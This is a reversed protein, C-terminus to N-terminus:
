VLRNAGVKIISNNIANLNNEIAELRVLHRNFSTNQAISALHGVSIRMNNNMEATYIRIANNQGILVSVTEESVGKIVGQMAQDTAGKSRGFIDYGKGSGWKDLQDFITMVSDMAPIIYEGSKDLAEAIAGSGYPAADVLEGAMREIHPMMIKSFVMKTVIDAIVAGMTKRFADAATEGAKFADVLADRLKDGIQGAMEVFTDRVQNKAEELQDTWAITDQLLVKTADDVQNTSILTQALEKNLNGSEDVLEPYVDLLGGYLDKKKKGKFFGLAGGIIFGAAAGIVTGVPGVATGVLAGIKAGALGITLGAAAGTAVSKGDVANKQGVKARGEELKAVSDQYKKLADDYQALGAKIKGDYDTLFPNRSHDDGKKQTLAQSYESEFRMSDIQFQKEAEKRKRSAETIMGILNLVSQLAAVWGQAGMTVKGDEGKKLSSLATTLNNVQGAVGSLINGMEAFGGGMGSMIEGLQGAFNGVVGILAIRKQQYSNEVKLLDEFHKKYAESEKDLGKTLREFDARAAEVDIKTLDDQSKQVIKEFAKYEKSQKALEDKDNDFEKKEAADIAALVKLYNAAKKDASREDLDNRMDSYKKQISLHREESGAVSVLFDQLLRKREKTAEILQEATQQRKAVGDSSMDNPNLESQIAKLKEIEETLSTSADRAEDLKERFQDIASKGGTAQTRQALLNDLDVLDTDSLKGSYGVDKMAELRAIEKNLYALYNNGNQLLGKFQDDASQQGYAAIWREYIAYMQQKEQLEEAFTKIRVEKEEAASDKVAKSKTPKGPAPTNPNATVENRKALGDAAEKLLATNEKDLEQLAVKKRKETEAKFKKEDFGSDELFLLARKGLGPEFEDDLVGTRIDRARKNNALIQEENAQLKLKAELAKTYDRIADAGKSTAINDLTLANFHEPSIAILEKLKANRQERSLSEDGIQKTLLQIKTTEEAHKQNLRETIELARDQAKTAETTEDSFLAVATALAILSSAALVYPNALTARNFAIQNATAFGLAKGMAFYEQVFTVMAASKQAAAVLLLAAKYSGYGAVIVKLSDIIPEYNEVILTAFRIGDALLGEQEKGINNFAQSITDEFNSYLGILGKSQEAMLGAFMGGSDTLKNIAKEVQPFGVKGQEVLKRVESEAVGFQEALLKILPIGRGVYQNLDEAMVRGEVKTKGYLETLEGLPINLGASIDGLRTLQATVQESAFGYALLQKSASAVGKLDFPTTAAFQVVDKMLQDAKEKSGLMTKYSIELNQFEGRVDILKKPLSALQDFAFAGAALRGLNSFTANLQEAEKSAHSTVGSIQKKIFKIDTEFRDTKIYSDFDISGNTSQM